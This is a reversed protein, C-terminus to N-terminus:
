KILQVYSNHNIVLDAGNDVSYGYRGDFINYSFLFHSPSSLNAFFSYDVIKVGNVKSVNTPELFIWGFGSLYFEPWAHGDNETYARGENFQDPTVLLGVVLRSPVGSARLLAIFLESYDECDGTKTNIAHLAGKNANIIDYTMYSNVFEYAKKAKLYPNTIGKFLEDAKAKIIPDDSEVKEEATTYKKYDSFGSYDSSVDLPNINYNIGSNLVTRVIKYQLAQGNKIYASATATKEEANSIIKMNPGSATLDLETQNYSNSSNGLGFGLDVNADRDSTVTYEDVIEYQHQNLYTITGNLVQEVESSIIGKGGLLFINQFASSNLYTKQNTIDKGDILIIPANLKTALASGSLADPFDEGYALVLNSINLNFAKCVNLSTEYRDAGWIRLVSSELIGPVLAKVQGVVNDSIAGTGGIVYVKSPQINNITEKVSDPIENTPTLIIPYNNIAAISSISLADPFNLGNVLVIPTGKSITLEDVIKINTEFRNAGGLRIINQFGMSNFTAIFENSITGAGGLIYISGSSKLHQKVYGLSSQSQSVTSDVLLIPAKLKASLVSGALADPFDKGSAIIVNDVTDNNFNSAINASTEYRNAGFIRTVKPSYIAAMASSWIFFTFIPVLLLILRKNTKMSVEGRKYKVMFYSKRRYFLNRNFEIVKVIIKYSERFIHFIM